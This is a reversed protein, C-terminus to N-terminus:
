KLLREYTSSIYEMSKSSLYAVMLSRLNCNKKNLTERVHKKLKKRLLNQKDLETNRSLVFYHDTYYHNIYDNVSQQVETNKPSNNIIYETAKICVTIKNLSYKIRIISENDTNYNYFKTNILGIKEVRNLVDVTYFVDQHIIKPINSM